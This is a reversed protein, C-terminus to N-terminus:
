RLVPFKAVFPKILERRYTPAIGVATAAGDYPADPEHIIVHPVSAVTLEEALRELDQSTAAELVVVHTHPDM